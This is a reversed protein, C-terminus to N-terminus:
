GKISNLGEIIRVAQYLQFDEHALEIKNKESQIFVKNDTPKKNEFHNFFNKESLNAFPNDNKEPQPLKTIDVYVDPIIGNAQISRGNPTYYLATTIKILSSDDIPIVSQVSGKGFTETGVVIARNHDQLSGALIESASASGKNTLIIIPKGNLTDGTTAEKIIEDSARGKISVITKNKMDNADLFLDSIQVVSDLLGGPNDRVDIIYGSLQNNSKNTMKQIAKVVQHYTKENFTAIRIYGVENDIIKSKVASFKIVERVLTIKVPKPESEKIVTITVSTNPKGKLMKVSENLDINQLVKDDIAIILDGSNLGAKKAPTDDFASIIKVAGSKDPEVEMGLGGYLGSSQTNFDKVQEPSIYASHPDLGKMMGSIASDFLNSFEKDEIYFYKIQAMVTAFRNVEDASISSNDQYAHTLQSMLVLTALLSKYM